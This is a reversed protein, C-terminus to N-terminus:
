GASGDIPEDDPDTESSDHAENWLRRTVASTVEYGFGRRVLHDGVRRRFERWDVGKLSRAKREAVRYAAAEEEEPGPLVTDIIEREVGKSRLESQLLRGGKPRYTQRNEVWFQAFQRDDVVGQKQLGALAEEVLSPDFSRRLLRSRLEAVSRPRYGLLTLAADYVQYLGDERQLELIEVESLYSGQSLRAALDGALGFAFRGDLFVNFRSSGGPRSQPEISTIQKM